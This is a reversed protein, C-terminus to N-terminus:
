ILCCCGWCSWGSSLCLANLVYFCYCYSCCCRCCGSHAASNWGSDTFVLLWLWLLLGHSKLLPM